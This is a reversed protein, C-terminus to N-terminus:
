ESHFCDSLDPALTTYNPCLCQFQDEEEFVECRYVCGCDAAVIDVYGDGDNFGVFERVPRSFSHGGSGPTYDTVNVVNGGTFGGGGGGELCGGGGGGFGGVAVRYQAPISEQNGLCHKGGEAFSDSMNMGRGDSSIIGRTVFVSESYGGGSGATVFEALLRDGRTGRFIPYIFETEKADVYDQYLQPTSLNFGDRFSYYLSTSSGGGGGSIAVIEDFSPLFPKRTGVYSAGGGAGGGTFRSIQDNSLSNAWEKLDKNCELASSFNQPPSTCLMHDLLNTDCADMGRQGVMVLADRGNDLQVM